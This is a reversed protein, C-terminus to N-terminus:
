TPSENCLLDASCNKHPGYVLLHGTEQSQNVSQKKTQYLNEKWYGTMNVALSSCGHRVDM